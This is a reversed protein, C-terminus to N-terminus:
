EMRSSNKSGLLNINEAAKMYLNQIESININLVNCIQIAELFSLNKENSLKWYMTSRKINLKLALVGITLQRGRIEGKIFDNLKL